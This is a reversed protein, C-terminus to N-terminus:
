HATPPRDSNFIDRVMKWSADPQKQWVVVYKGSDPMAQAGKTKPQVTWAYAGTEVALDGGLMVDETHLRLEKMTMAGLLGDYGKQIEERGRWAPANPAMAMANPAYLSDMARADGGTAAEAFKANAAEIAQRVQAVGSTTSM